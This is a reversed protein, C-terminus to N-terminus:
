IYIEANTQLYKVGSFPKSSDLFAIDLGLIFIHMINFTFNTCNLFTLITAVHVRNINVHQKPIDSLKNLHNLLWKQTNNTIQKILRISEQNNGCHIAIMNCCLTCM